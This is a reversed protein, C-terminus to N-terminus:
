SLLWRLYRYWEPMYKLMASMEAILKGNDMVEIEALKASDREILDALRFLFKGRQTPKMESWGSDFATKASAVAKDVDTSNGRAIKAWVEGTYPNKTEFYSGSSSEVWAGNIYLQYTKM